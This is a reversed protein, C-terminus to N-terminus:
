YESVANQTVALQCTQVAVLQGRAMAVNM